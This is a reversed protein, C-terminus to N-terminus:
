HGIICHFEDSGPMKVFMSPNLPLPPFSCEMGTPSSITERGDGVSMKKNMCYTFSINEVIIVGLLLLILGALSLQIINPVTHDRTNAAKVSSVSVEVDAASFLHTDADGDNDNEEEQEEGTSVFTLLPTRTSSETQNSSTSDEANTVILNINDSLKVGLALLMISYIGSDEARVDQIMLSVNESSVEARHKYGETMEIRIKCSDRWHQNTGNAKCNDAKLMLVLKSGTVFYWRIQFYHPLSTPRSLLASLWATSRAPVSVSSKPVTLIFAATPGLLMLSFWLKAMIIVM